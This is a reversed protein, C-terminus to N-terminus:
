VEMLTWLCGEFYDHEQNRNAEAYRLWAEAQKDAEAEKINYLRTKTDEIKDSVELEMPLINDKKAHSVEHLFVFLMRKDSLQPEIDITLLGSSDKRCLGEYGENHQLRVKVPKEALNQAVKSMLDYVTKL